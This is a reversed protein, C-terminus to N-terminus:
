TDLQGASPSATAADAPQVAARTAEAHVIRWIWGGAVIGVLVDAAVIGGFLGYVAWLHSGTWALALVLGTRSVNICTSLMPRHLANLSSSTLLHLGQLAMGMPVIRLFMVTPEAVGEASFVEALPRALVALAVFSALGWVISLRQGLWLSRRVRPWQGAGANQGIFPVVSVLFAAMAMMPFSTIAHGNGIGAVVAVGFRDSVMRTLLGITLATLLQTVSSPVGIFLVLRWSRWLAAAHLAVWGLLRVRYRLILLSLTMTVARGVVTAMAAGAMGMEPFFWLGRIFFPDLLANLGAGLLMIMSPIVTDGTARIVTNGVIPIVVFVMGVYWIRMYAKVMPLSAEDAGVARFVPDMTLLGVTCLVAVLSVVLILSHATLERVRQMDGEGIARSVVASVGTSLGFTVSFIVMIAPSIYQMAAQAEAGLHKIFYRDALFYLTMSLFGILMPGAMKALTWGVPGTVLAANNRENNAM